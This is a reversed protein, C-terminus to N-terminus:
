ALDTKSDNTAGTPKAGLFYDMSNIDSAAPVKNHSDYVRHINTLFINGVEHTVHVDDQMHVKIRNFDERWNHGMYGDDPLMPDNFFVKLGEFDSKIREFVIVNPAIVLFNRALESEAEYLKHFYSWTLALALIKTKGSGTAMKVVYRTWDEDFMDPRIDQRSSYRILDYKNRARAVEYLWIITEIAERQAFYYEFEYMGGDRGPILHKTNFWFGLLAKSTTTAGVYGGDRWRKVEKRLTSVLPPVLQHAKDKYAADGPFWRIEPELIEYPSTPFDKDLAM